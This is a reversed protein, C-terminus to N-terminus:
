SGLSKITVGVVKPFSLSEALLWTGPKRNLNFTQVSIKFVLRTMSLSFSKKQVSLQLLLTSSADKGCLAWPYRIGLSHPGLLAVSPSNCLESTLQPEPM